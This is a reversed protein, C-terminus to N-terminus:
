EGFLIRRLRMLVEVNLEEMVIEKMVEDSLGDGLYEKTIDQLNSNQEIIRDVIEPIKHKLLMLEDAKVGKADYVM